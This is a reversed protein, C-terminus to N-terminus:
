YGRLARVGHTAISRRLAHAGAITTLARIGRVNLKSKELVSISAVAYRISGCAAYAPRLRDAKKPVPPRARATPACTCTNCQLASYSASSPARTGQADVDHLTLQPMPIMM